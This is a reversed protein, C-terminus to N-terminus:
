LVRGYRPDRLEMVQQLVPTLMECIGQQLRSKKDSAVHKLPHANM